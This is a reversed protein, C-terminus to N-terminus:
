FIQTFLTTAFSCLFRAMRFKMISISFHYFMKHLISCILDTSLKVIGSATRNKPKSKSRKRFGESAGQVAEATM